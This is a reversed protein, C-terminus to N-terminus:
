FGEGISVDVRFSPRGRQSPLDGYAPLDLKELLARWRCVGNHVAVTYWCPLGERRERDYTEASRPRLRLYETVFAGTTKLRTEEVSPRSVPYNNELWAQLTIGYKQKIVTHPPMGRKKFDTVTPVRGHDLIFQEVADHIAADSWHHLPLDQSISHLIQITEEHNGIEALVSVAQEIAQKRTM